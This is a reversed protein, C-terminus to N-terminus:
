PANHKMVKLMNLANSVDTEGGDNSLITFPITLENLQLTGQTMYKYEGPKPAKDTASFYYGQISNGTIEKLPISNEVAQSAAHNAANQVNTKITALSQQPMDKKAPWIPTLLMQFTNKGETEMTITPPLQDPPQRINDKWSSPFTLSLSGHNPLSFDKTSSDVAFSFSALTLSVYM